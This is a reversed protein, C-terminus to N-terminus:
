AALRHAYACLRAYNCVYEYQQLFCQKLTKKYAQCEIKRYKKKINKIEIPVIQWNLFMTQINLIYDYLKAM